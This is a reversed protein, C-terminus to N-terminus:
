PWGIRSGEVWEVHMDAFLANTGGANMRKHSGYNYIGNDINQGFMWSITEGQECYAITAEAMSSAKIRTLQNKTWMVPASELTKYVLSGLEPYANWSLAGFKPTGDPLGCPHVQTEVQKDKVLEWAWTVYSEGEAVRIQTRVQTGCIIAAPGKVFDKRPDPNKGNVFPCVYIKPLYKKSYKPKTMTDQSNGWDKDPSYVGNDVNALNKTEASYKSLAVSMLRSRAPFGQGMATFRNLMVPVKDDNDGQYAAVMTGIQKENSTCAVIKASNRAKSLAPLLIGMLLAIISIVVLLEILTFASHSKKIIM